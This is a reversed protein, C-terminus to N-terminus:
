GKRSDYTFMLMYLDSDSLAIHIVQSHTHNCLWTVEFLDLYIRIFIVSRTESETCQLSLGNYIYVVRIMRRRISIWRQHTSM